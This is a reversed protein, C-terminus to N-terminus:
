LVINKKARNIESAECLVKHSTREAYTFVGVGILTDKTSYWQLNCPPKVHCFINFTNALECQL